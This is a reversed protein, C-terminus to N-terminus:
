YRELAPREANKIREIEAGIMVSSYNEKRRIESQRLGVEAIGCDQYSFNRIKIQRNFVHPWKGANGSQNTRIYNDFKRVVYWRSSQVQCDTYTAYGAVGPLQIDHRLMSIEAGTLPSIFIHLTVVTAIAM